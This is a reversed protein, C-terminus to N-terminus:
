YRFELTQHKLIEEIENILNLDPCIKEQLQILVSTNEPTSIHVRIQCNGPSKSFAGKLRRVQDPPLPQQVRIVLMKALEQRYQSCLQVSDPTFSVEEERMYVRGKIFIPENKELLEQSEAYVKAYLAFEITDSLDEVKIIAFRESKKNLKIMKSVIMGALTVANGETKKGEKLQQIPLAVQKIESWYQELPHGSVFFGLTEKELELRQKKNWDKRYPLVLQTETSQADRQDLFDFLSNQQSNQDRQFEQGLHMAEDLGEFLSARNPNIADFAGCKVLTELVRKNVKTLDVSKTFDMVNQFRHSPKSARADLISDVAIGGVNKVANLGFRVAPTTNLVSVTFAKVSENLDPPLVPIKMQRCEGIFNVVKDPNSMSCNLLAAMFEVPYHAKLYATQYSIIGYAVTHSKNFGYGSFYDIIDFIDNATQDPALRCGQIFEPNAVCGEVFIQRQQALIEPTKKGIARRLLDAQGLTFGALVQVAQMIQEQYVIVGYTEKLIDKLLPHPYVVAKKGHKCRIFDDVMGSGLPGPRYLALIAVIDEFVSPRMDVLLKKMGSSELQFVGTTDGRCFLQFTLPDEMDLVDVTLQAEPPKRMNILKLAEDIISLNLLGLFDFKVAGQDEAYKMTFMSQISGDKGTCVPMVEQIDTDM